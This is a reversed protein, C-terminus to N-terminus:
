GSQLKKSYAIINKFIKVVFKQHEKSHNKVKSIVKLERKKDTIGINHAMKYKAILMALYFRSLLLKVIGKDIADIRKRYTDLKNM